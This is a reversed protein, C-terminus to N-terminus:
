TIKKEKSDQPKPPSIITFRRAMSNTRHREVLEPVEKELEKVDVRRSNYTTWRIRPVGDVTGIAASGLAEKVVAEIRDALAAADAAATRTRILEDVLWAELVVARDESRPYLRSWLENDSPFMAAPVRGLRLFEWLAEATTMVASAQEGQLEYRHVELMGTHLHSTASYGIRVGCCVMQATMQATLYHEPYGEPNSTTKVELPWPGNSEDRDDLLADCTATFWAHEPHTAEYQRAVVSLGLLAAAADIVKDELALGLFMRDTSRKEVLGLKGAIVSAPSQNFAGTLAAAVDSAGIRRRRREVFDSRDDAM